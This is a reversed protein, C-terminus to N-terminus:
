ALDDAADSTYLLCGDIHAMELLLACTAIRIDHVRREKSDSPDYKSAEGFIKKLLDIM